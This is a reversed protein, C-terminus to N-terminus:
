VVTAQVSSPQSFVLQHPMLSPRSLQHLQQMDISHNRLTSLLQLLACSAALRGGVQLLVNAKGQKNEAGGKVEYQCAERVQLYTHSLLRKKPSRPTFVM